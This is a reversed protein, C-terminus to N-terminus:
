EATRSLQKKSSQPVWESAYNYKMQSNDNM